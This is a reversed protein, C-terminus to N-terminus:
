IVGKGLQSNISRILEQNTLAKNDRIELSCLQNDVEYLGVKDGLIRENRLFISHTVCCLGRLGVFFKEKYKRPGDGGDIRQYIGADEKWLSGNEEVAAIVSDYGELLTHEIIDDILGETRLPFTPELTVIIDSLIGNNELYDVSYKFVAELGVYDRSLDLPREFPCKAGLKEAIRKTERDDTVVFVNEIYKSNKAAHITYEIQPTDGLFVPPGKSPIIANVRIEGLNVKGKNLGIEPFNEIINVINACRVEDGDQHIGHYHYVSADPEYVINYGRKIM